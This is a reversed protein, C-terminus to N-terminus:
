NSYYKMFDYEEKSIESVGCEKCGDWLLSDQEWDTYNLYECRHVHIRCSNNPKTWCEENCENKHKCNTDRHLKITTIYKDWKCNNCYLTGKPIYKKMARKKM